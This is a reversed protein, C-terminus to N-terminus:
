EGEEESNNKPLALTNIYSYDENSEPDFGQIAMVTDDVKYVDILENTLQDVFGHLQGVDWTDQEEESKVYQRILKQVKSPNVGIQELYEQEGKTISGSQRVDRICQVLSRKMHAKSENKEVDAESFSNVKGKLQEYMDNLALVDKMAGEIYRVGEVMGEQLEALKIKLEVEKWYDLTGDENGNQLQEQIKKIKVENKVQRWKAETLAGKKRSIEASIQRMNKWPSHYSLNIHKWVWQTHSHNWVNELEGANALAKDVEATNEVLSRGGFSEINGLTGHGFVMSLPVKKEETTALETSRRIEEFVAVQQNDEATKFDMTPTQKTKNESM